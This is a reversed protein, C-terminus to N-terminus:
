YFILFFSAFFFCSCSFNTLEILFSLFLITDSMRFFCCSDFCDVFL